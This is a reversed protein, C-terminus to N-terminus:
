RRITGRKEIPWEAVIVGKNRARNFQARLSKEKAVIQSWNQPKWVPQAGLLVKSHKPSDAYISELRAESCFYCVSEKAQAADWEFETAVDRLRKQACVPAGAGVRVGRYSVFGIVADNAGAFWHRIGPNLIQYSTSNWGHALVMRRANDLPSVTKQSQRKEKENAIAVVARNM